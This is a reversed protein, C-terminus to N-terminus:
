HLLSWLWLIKNSEEKRINLILNLARYARDNILTLYSLDLDRRLPIYLDFYMVSHWIIIM